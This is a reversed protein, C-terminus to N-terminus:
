QGPSELLQRFHDAIELLIEEPCESDAVFFGYDGLNNNVSFEHSRYEFELWMEIVGNTEFERIKVGRLKELHDRFEDFFVVEPFDAFHRREGALERFDDITKPHM